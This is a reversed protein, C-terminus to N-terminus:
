RVGRTWKKIRDRMMFALAVVVVLLGVILVIQATPDLSGVVAGATTVAGTVGIAGAQVSKSSAISTRPAKKALWTPVHFCPCAKAAYQNHGTIKMKGHDAQLKDLLHRLAEEQAATFHDYFTDTAAGGQGGFLSIGITGTNHGKVHAGVRNLPRGDAVTGDRDILFHYGIDAWGRDQVHWRRVEHVKAKTPKSEWWNPPTATAHIIIENLQRM